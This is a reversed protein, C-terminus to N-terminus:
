PRGAAILSRIAVALPRPQHRIKPGSWEANVDCEVVSARGAWRLPFTSVVPHVRAADRPSADSHVRLRPILIYDFLDFGAHTRIAELHDDLTYGDTEGPETILNGVYIRVANIGYITAAVGEVLLNPLISTYLSGPGVVVADANVLAKLVEPLPRPSPHLTLRKIRSNHAVISTEGDVLEGGEFEARLRVDHDTAPLVDGRVDIARALSHVAAAFDGTIQTLAALLLNGVPHSDVGVRHQLLARFTSDTRAAAALCNRVDGPPLVGLAQRLRGSSGGDDTVTVIATVSSRTDAGDEEALDCLGQIVAPLGTGGGIAVVKPTNSPPCVPAKLTVQHAPAVTLAAPVINV